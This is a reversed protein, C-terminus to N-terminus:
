GVRVFANTARRVFPLVLLLTPFAIVWSIAWARAWIGVFGAPLGISNVTSVLSVILTMLVSLFLPMVVSAFKAPLKPFGLVTHTHRTRANMHQTACHSQCLLTLSRRM